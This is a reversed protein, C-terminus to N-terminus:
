AARQAQDPKKMGKKIVPHRMRPKPRQGPARGPSNGRPKPARAPTGIQRLIRGFDRQTTSPSAVQPNPHPLYREWPKPLTQALSRALWLQLYALQVIQWWNEEHEVDPTQYANMLLRQKGFRFFHELDYRQRYAQWIQILSLEERRKGLVLLWLPRQFVPEGKENFVRCRILTFFQQHMDYEKRGRMLLDQWARISVRYHRGQPTLYDVETEEDPLSWTTENKLDFVHGYWALRGAKGPEREVPLAPHYFTRNGRVRAITVLNNQHVKKLPGLFLVGSYAADGVEVCLEKAFPLTEDDIVDQIQEVGVATGTQDSTVRRMSLPVIWPPEQPTVKEPLFALTSYQHGIAIPKNGWITNPQHVFGRDELTRAFPRPLSTVDLGFLRFPRQQPEPLYPTLLGLLKKDYTRRQAQISSFLDPQFFRGIATYVSGYGRRFPGNLSLEVVSRATTNASLADLLDVSADVRRLLNDYIDQRFEELQTM